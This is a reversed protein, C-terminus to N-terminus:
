RLTFTVSVTATTEQQGPEIPTSADSAQAAARYMPEPGAGGGVINTAPGLSGGGVRRLPGGRPGAGEAARGPPSRYLAEANSTSLGPGSIENAGAESAADIVGPVDAVDAVASVSNSASYGDIRANDGSVPYVSVWETAIEQAGARRLAAIVARMAD